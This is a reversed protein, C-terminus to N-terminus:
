ANEGAEVARLLIRLSERLAGYAEAYDFGDRSSSGYAGLMQQAVHVATTLTSPPTPNDM